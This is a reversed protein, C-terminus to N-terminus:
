HKGFGQGRRGNGDMFPHIFELEYHFVVRILTLNQKKDKM